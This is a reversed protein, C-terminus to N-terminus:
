RSSRLPTRSHTSTRVSRTSASASTTESAPGSGASGGSDSRLRSPVRRDLPVARHTERRPCRKPTLCRDEFFDVSATVRVRGDDVLQGDVPHERVRRETPVLALCHTPQEGTALADSKEDTRRARSTASV